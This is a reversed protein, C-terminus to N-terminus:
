SECQGVFRCRRSVECSHHITSLVQHDWDQMLGAQLVDRISMVGSQRELMMHGLQRQAEQSGPRTWHTGLALAYRILLKTRKGKLIRQIQLRIPTNNPIWPLELALSVKM